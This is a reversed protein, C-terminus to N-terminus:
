GQQRALGRAAGIGAAAGGAENVLLRVPPQGADTPFRGEALSQVIHFVGSGLSAQFVSRREELLGQLQPVLKRLEAVTSATNRNITGILQLQTHFTRVEEVLREKENNVNAIGQVLKNIADQVLLGTLSVAEASLEEKVLVENYEQISTNLHTLVASADELSYFPAVEVGSRAAAHYHEVVQRALEVVKTADSPSEATRAAALAIVWKPSDTLTALESSAAEFTTVVTEADQTGKTLARAVSEFATARLDEQCNDIRQLLGEIVEPTDLVTAPISATGIGKADLLTKSRALLPKRCCELALEAWAETTELSLPLPVDPIGFDGEVNVSRIRNAVSEAREALQMLGKLSKAEMTAGSGTEQNRFISRGSSGLAEEAISIDQVLLDLKTAVENISVDATLLAVSEKILQTILSEIGKSDIDAFRASETRAASLIRTKSADLDQLSLHIKSVTVKAKAVDSEILELFTALFQEYLVVALRRDSSGQAALLTTANANVTDLYPLLNMLTGVSDFSPFIGHQQLSVETQKASKLTRFIDSLQSNLRSLADGSAETSSQKTQWLSRLAVKCAADDTLYVLEDQSVFTALRRLSDGYASFTNRIDDIIKAPESRETHPSRHPLLDDAISVYGSRGWLSKSNVMLERLDALFGLVQPSSTEFAQRIAIAVADKDAIRALIESLRKPTTSPILVAPHCTAESVFSMLRSRYFAVQRQLNKDSEAREAIPFPDSGEKIWDRLSLLFDTLALPLHLVNMRNHQELWEPFGTAHWENTDYPLLVTVGNNPSLSFQRFENSESYETLASSSTLFIVVNGSRDRWSFIPQKTDEFKRRVEAPHTGILTPSTTPLPFAAAIAAFSLSLEAATTAHLKGQLKWFIQGAHQEASDHTELLKRLAAGGEITEKELREREYELLFDVALRLLHPTDSESLSFCEDVSVAELLLVIYRVLDVAVAEMRFVESIITLLENELESGLRFLKGAGRGAEPKISLLRGLEGPQFHDIYAAPVVNQSDTEYPAQSVSDLDKVFEHIELTGEPKFARYRQAAKMLHRPKGRSLWWLSNATGEPIDKLLRKAYTPRVAPIPRVRLRERDAKGLVYLSGVAFACVKFAPDELWARLPSRDDARVRNQLSVYAQEVEDILLVPRKDVTEGIQDLRELVYSLFADDRYITRLFESSPDTRLCDIAKTVFAQAHNRFGEPSPETGAGDLLDNLHFYIPILGGALAKEAVWFLFQTKGAGFAGWSQWRTGFSAQGICLL